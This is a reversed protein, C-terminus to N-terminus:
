LASLHIILYCSLSIFVDLGLYSWYKRMVTSSAVMEPKFIETYMGIAVHFSTVFITAYLFMNSHTILLYTMMLCYLSEIILVPSTSEKLKLSDRKYRDHLTVTSWSTYLIIAFIGTYSISM